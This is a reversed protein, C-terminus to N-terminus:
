GGGHVIFAEPKEIVAPRIRTVSLKVGLEKFYEKQLECLNKSKQEIKQELRKIEPNEWTLEDWVGQLQAWAVQDKEYILEFAQEESSALVCVMGNTYDTLVGEWVYLNLKAM